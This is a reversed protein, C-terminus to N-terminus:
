HVFAGLGNAKPGSERQTPVEKSKLYANLNARLIRFQRGFRDSKLQGSRCARRVTEVSIRLEAAIEDPTLYDMPAGKMPATQTIVTNYVEITIEDICLV